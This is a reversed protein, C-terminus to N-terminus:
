SEASREHNGKELKKLVLKADPKNISEVENTELDIIYNQPLLLLKKDTEPEKEILKLKLSIRISDICNLPPQTRDAETNHIVYCQYANNIEKM